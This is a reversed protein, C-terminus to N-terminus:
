SRTKRPQVKKSQQADQEQQAKGDETGCGTRAFRSLADVTDIIQALKSDGRQNVARFIISLERWTHRGIPHSPQLAIIPIQSEEFTRGIWHSGMSIVRTRRAARTIREVHGSTVEDVAKIIIKCHSQNVAIAKIVLAPLVEQIM